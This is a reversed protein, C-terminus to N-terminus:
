SAKSETVFTHHRRRMFLVGACVATVLVATSPEPLAEAAAVAAAFETDNLQNNFILFISDSDQYISEQFTVSDGSGVEELASLRMEIMYAGVAPSFPNNTPDEDDDPVRLKYGLHSHIVSFGPGRIAINITGQKGSTTADLIVKLDEEPGGDELTEDENNLDFVEFEEGGVPATWADGGPAFYQLANFYSTQLLHHNPFVDREPDNNFVGSIFGPDDTVFVKSQPTAIPFGPSDEREAIGGLIPENGSLDGINHMLIMQGAANVTTQDKFDVTSTTVIQDTDTEIEVRFMGHVPSHAPGDDGWAIGVGAGLSLVVALSVAQNSLMQKLM